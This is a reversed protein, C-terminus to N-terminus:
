MKLRHVLGRTPELASVRNDIDHKTGFIYATLTLKLNRLRWFAPKQTGFQQPFTSGLNRMRVYVKLHCESGCTVPKPQTGNLWSRHRRTLLYFFFFFFFFTPFIFDRCFRLRDLVIDPPRINKKEFCCLVISQQLQGQSNAVSADRSLRGRAWLM